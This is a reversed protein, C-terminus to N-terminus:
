LFLLQKIEPLINLYQMILYMKHMNKTFKSQYFSKEVQPTRLTKLLLSLVNDVKNHQYCRNCYM